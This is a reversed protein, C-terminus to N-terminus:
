FLLSVKKKEEKRTDKNRKGKDGIRMREPNQQNRRKNVCKSKKERESERTM